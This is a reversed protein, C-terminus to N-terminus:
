CCRWRKPLWWARNRPHGRIRAKLVPEWSGAEEGILCGTSLM